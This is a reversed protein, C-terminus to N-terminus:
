SLSKSYDAPSKGVASKFNKSFSSRSAFGCEWSLAETTNHKLFGEKILNVAHQMRLDNRYEAFTVKFYQNLFTSLQHPPLNVSTALQTIDFDQSLFLQQKEAEKLKETLEQINFNFEKLSTKEKNNNAKFTNATKGTVQFESFRYLISPFYFPMLGLLFTIIAFFLVLYYSNSAFFEALFANNFYGTFSWTGWVLFKVTALVWFLILWKNFIRKYNNTIEIKLYHILMPLIALVALISIINRILIQTKLTFFGYGLEFRISPNQLVEQIITNRFEGGKYYWQFVDVLAIVFPIFVIAYIPKWVIQEKISSLFYFFLAVPILMFLLLPWGYFWTAKAFLNAEFIFIQLNNVSTLFFYAALFLTAKKNETKALFFLSALVFGFIATILLLYYASM